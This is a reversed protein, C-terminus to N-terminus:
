RGPSSGLIRVMPDKDILYQYQLASHGLKDRYDKHLIDIVIGDRSFQLVYISPVGFKEGSQYLWGQNGNPLLEKRIPGGHHSFADQENFIGLPYSMLVESPENGFSFNPPEQKASYATTPAAILLPLVIITFTVTKQILNKM